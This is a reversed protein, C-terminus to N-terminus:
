INNLIIDIASLESELKLLKKSRESTFSSIRNEIDPYLAVYKDFTELEAKLKHVKSNAQHYDVLLKKQVADKDFINDLNGLFDMQNSNTSYKFNCGSRDISMFPTEGLERIIIYIKQYFKKSKFEPFNLVFGAYIHKFESNKFTNECLYKIIKQKLTHTDHMRYGFFM